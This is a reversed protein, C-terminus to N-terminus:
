VGWRRRVSRSVKIELPQALFDYVARQLHLIQRVQGAALEGCVGHALHPHSGGLVRRHGPASVQVLDSPGLNQTRVADVRVLAALKHTALALLVAGRVICQLRATRVLGHSHKHAAQVAAVAPSGSLSRSSSSSNQTTQPILSRRPRQLLINQFKM